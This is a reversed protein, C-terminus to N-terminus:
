VSDLLTAFSAADVTKVGRYEGVSLVDKDESVIYDARGAVACAFLKDDDPDRCVKPARRPEVIEARGLWDVLRDIPPTKDIRTLKPTLRPDLITALIETVLDPSAVIDYQEARSLLRGWPSDPNMLARVFVVTDIM